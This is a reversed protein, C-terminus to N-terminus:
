VLREFSYQQTNITTSMLLIAVIFAMIAIKM